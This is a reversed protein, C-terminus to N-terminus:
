FNLQPQSQFYSTVQEPIERLTEEAIAEIGRSAVSSFPVFQVIDRAAVQGDIALREDDGDLMDMARFDANGVGVIVISLPLSSARVIEAITERMDTIVGDTIILLVYYDLRGQARADNALSATARIVQSFITPGWLAVNNLAMNYAELVGHPGECGPNTSGNLIFNHSIEGNAFKGGFGFADIRGTQSYPTLVSGISLIAKQYQNPQPGGQNMGPQLQSFDFNQRFHLSAPDTPMGNSQTFDIAAVLNMRMGKQLYDIFSLNKRIEISDFVITGVSKSKGKPHLLVLERRGSLIENLSTEIHGIDDYTGDKDWDKCEIRLPRFLDGNCLRGLKIVMKKWTPNLTKKVVETQHVKVWNAAELQKRFFMLVPDSKGFTDKKALKVGRAEIIVDDNSNVGRQEIHIVMSGFKSMAQEKSMM